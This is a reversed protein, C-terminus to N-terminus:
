KSKAGVFMDVISDYVAVLTEEGDVIKHIEAGDQPKMRNLANYEPILSGDKASTFGTGTQPSSVKGFNDTTYNGM